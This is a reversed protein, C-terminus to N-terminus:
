FKLIHMPTKVKDMNQEKINYVIPIFLHLFLKTSSIIAIHILSNSYQEIHMLILIRHLSKSHYLFTLSCFILSPWLIWLLRKLGRWFESLVLCFPPIYNEGPPERFEPICRPPLWGSCLPSCSDPVLSLYGFLIFGVISYEVTLSPM